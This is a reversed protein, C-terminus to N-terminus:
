CCSVKWCVSVSCLSKGLFIFLYLGLSCAMAGIVDPSIMSDTKLLGHLAPGTSIGIRITIHWGPLQFGVIDQCQKDISLVSEAIRLAAAYALIPLQKTSEAEEM